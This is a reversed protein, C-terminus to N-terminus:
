FGVWAASVGCAPIVVCGVAGSWATAFDTAAFGTACFAAPLFESFLLESLLLEAALLLTALSSFLAAIIVGRSILSNGERMAWRRPEPQILSSRAREGRGPSPRLVGPVNARM